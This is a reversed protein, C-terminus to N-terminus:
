KVLSQGKKQVTGLLGKVISIVKDKFIVLVAIMVLMILVLEMTGLGEEDMAFYKVDMMKIYAMTLKDNVLNKIRKM